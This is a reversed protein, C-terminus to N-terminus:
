LEQWMQSGKKTVEPGGKGVLATIRQRNDNLWWFYATMPKKLREDKQIAKVAAKAMRKGKAGLKEEIIRTKRAATGDEVKQRERKRAAREGVAEPGGSEAEEAQVPVAEQMGALEEVEARDETQPRQDAEAPQESRAPEETQESTEARSTGLRWIVSRRQRM